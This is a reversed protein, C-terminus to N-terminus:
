DKLRLKLYEGVMIAAPYMVEEESQAHRKLKETFEVVNAKKENKAANALDDLAAVITKHESLMTPLEAKLRDALTIAERMEASIKGEAIQSLLGLPPLAYEEEKEFHSHLRDAVVKAAEGTSGGSKIANELEGHLEEHESKISKPILFKMVPEKKDKTSIESASKNCGSVGFVIFGSLLVAITRKWNQSNSDSNRCM